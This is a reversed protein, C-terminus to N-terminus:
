CKSLHIESKKRHTLLLLIYNIHPLGNRGRLTRFETDTSLVHSKTCSTIRPETYNRYVVDQQHVKIMLLVSIVETHINVM